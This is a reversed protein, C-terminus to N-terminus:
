LRCRLRVVETACSAAVCRQEALATEEYCAQPDPRVARSPLRDATCAQGDM